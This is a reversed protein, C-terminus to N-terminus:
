LEATLTNDAGLLENLACEHADNWCTVNDSFNVSPDLDEQPTYHNSFNKVFKATVEDYIGTQPAQYGYAKLKQQLALVQEGSDGLNIQCTTRDIGEPFTITKGIGAEALKGWPFFAGPAIHKSNVEGLGVVEMTTKHRINIDKILTILQDIQPDSFPSKADNVLMIGIGYDNVGYAGHWHSAGAFFAKQSESHHQDQFGDAKITYHVSTGTNFMTTVAKNIDGETSTYTIVITNIKTGEPREASLKNNNKTSIYNTM